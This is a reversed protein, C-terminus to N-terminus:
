REITITRRCFVLFMYIYVYLFVTCFIYYCIKGCESGGFVLVFTISETLMAYSMHVHICMHKPLGGVGKFTKKFKEIFATDNTAGGRERASMKTELSNNAIAVDRRETAFGATPQVCYTLAIQRNTKDGISPKIIPRCYQNAM